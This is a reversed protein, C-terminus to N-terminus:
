KVILGYEYFVVTKKEHRYRITQVVVKCVAIHLINIMVLPRNNQM